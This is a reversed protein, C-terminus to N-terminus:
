APDAFNNYDAPINGGIRPTYDLRQYEEATWLDFEVEDARGSQDFTVLVATLKEPTAGITVDLVDGTLVDLDMKGDRWVPRLMITGLLKSYRNSLKMKVPLQATTEIEAYIAKDQPGGDVDRVADQLYVMSLAKTIKKVVNIFAPHYREPEPHERALQEQIYPVQIDNYYSLMRVAENKRRTDADRMARRYTELVISEAQSKPYM